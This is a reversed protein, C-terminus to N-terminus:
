YNEPLCIYQAHGGGNAGSSAFVKDGVKYSTVDKGVSEIEGAVQTGLIMKKRPKRFGFILKALPIMSKPIFTFNRVNCDGSAVTTTHVKIRVEDDKPVPIDVDETRLLDAPGYATHLVAKM